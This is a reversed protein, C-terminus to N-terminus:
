AIHSGWCRVARCAEVSEQGGSAEALEGGTHPGGLIWNLRRTRASARLIHDGCVISKPLHIIVTQRSRRTKYKVVTSSKGYKLAQMKALVTLKNCLRNVAAVIIMKRTM